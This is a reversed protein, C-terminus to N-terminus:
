LEGLLLPIEGLSRVEANPFVSVANEGKPNYWITYIGYETGGKVDSTLSDGILVTKLPDFGTAQRCHDFFGKSPKVAGICQSIFVEKFYREINAARLRGKQIMEYGNTVAYVDYKRYVAELFSIADPILANTESLAIAYEDAMALPSLKAGIKSLFDEFRRVRLEERTIEGKELRKWIERNIEHYVLIDKENFPIGFHLLSHSLAQKECEAFDFITDDLDLLITKIM